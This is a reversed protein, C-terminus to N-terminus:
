PALRQYDYELRVNGILLDRGDHLHDLLEVITRMDDVPHFSGDDRADALFAPLMLETMQFREVIHVADHRDQPRELEGRALNSGFPGANFHLPHLDAAITQGDDRSGARDFALLLNLRGGRANLPTSRVQQAPASELRTGRGVRELPHLVFTQTQQFRRPALDPQRHDGFD